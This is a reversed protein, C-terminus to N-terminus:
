MTNLSPVLITQGGNVAVPLRRLITLPNEKAPSKTNCCPLLAETMNLKGKCGYLPLPKPPPPSEEHKLLKFKETIPLGSKM